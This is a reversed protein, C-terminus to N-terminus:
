IWEHDRYWTLTRTIGERLGIQPAYGLEHRARAIDFARSKTFFDVRRRYIPPEIGLPACLAECAAGAMWFPWVPLHLRPAPVAAVEAILAVLANLTTVEGGALIYTRNAAAPHEGCLRFGEVLDDIYTLHYYIEGRGLTVWRRRAVGRFLRLLRRDGPGYIGTPRVITVEVATRAGAERAAREGELKTEQYVDGPKLPADEDAPPGQVDGHVGVTSCHVVRRVGGRAAAEILDGVATANVARYTDTSVGAQRYIAAIHYVVDVGATADALARRDRLDGPVIAIGANTLSQSSDSKDSDHCTRPRVLARVDYGRAALSRAVHGGTFGTAGTVLAVTRRM